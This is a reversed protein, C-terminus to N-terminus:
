SQKELILLRAPNTLQRNVEPHTVHGNSPVSLHKCLFAEHLQQVSGDDPFVM